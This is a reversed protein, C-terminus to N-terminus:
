CNNLIKQLMMTAPGLIIVHLTSPHPLLSSTHYSHRMPTSPLTTIIVIPIKLLKATARACLDCVENAFFGHQSSKYVEELENVGTTMWDKYEEINDSAEKM